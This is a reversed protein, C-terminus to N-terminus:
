EEKETTAGDQGLRRRHRAIDRGERQLPTDSEFFMNGNNDLLAGRIKERIYEIRKPDPDPQLLEKAYVLWPNERM